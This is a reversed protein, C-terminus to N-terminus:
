SPTPCATRTPPPATRAGVHLGRPDPLHLPRRARGRHARLPRHRRDHGEALERDSMGADCVMPLSALGNLVFPAPAALTITVTGAADDAKAKAGAPLFTGLFPSKNKPDAVYNINDAAMTATFATGDSCTIGDNLTFTVTTGDVEWESALQPEVEGTKGDVCVLNDYAFQNVAFLQTSASSQPDLKGPDGAMSM